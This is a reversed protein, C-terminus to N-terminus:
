IMLSMYIEFSLVVSALKCAEALAVEPAPFLQQTSRVLSRTSNAKPVRFWDTKM